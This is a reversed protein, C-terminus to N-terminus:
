GDDVVILDVSCADSVTIWPVAYAFDQAGLDVAGDNANGYWAWLSTITTAPLIEVDRLYTGEWDYLKLGLTVTVSSGGEDHAYLSMRARTWSACPIGKTVPADEGCTLTDAGDIHLFYGVSVNPPLTPVPSLWDAYDRIELPGTASWRTDSIDGSEFSSDNADLMLNNSIEAKVRCGSVGAAFRQIFPLSGQQPSMLADLVHRARGIGLVPEYVYGISETMPKIMQPPVRLPDWFFQTAEAMTVARDLFAGTSQVFQVLDHGREAPAISRQAENIAVGPLMEPMRLAWNNDAIGIEYVSGAPTWVRNEDLCFATYFVWEGPPPQPDRYVPLGSAFSTQDWDTGSCEMVVQGEERRRCPSRTSRVLSFHSWTGTPWTWEVSIVFRPNELDIDPEAWAYAEMPLASFTSM